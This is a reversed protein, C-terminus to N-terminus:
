GKLWCLKNGVTDTYFWLQNMNSAQIPITDGPSLEFDTSDVGSDFGVFVLGTNTSRAKLYVGNALTIASGQNPQDSDVTINGITDSDGELFPSIEIDTHHNYTTM